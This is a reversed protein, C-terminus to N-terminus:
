HLHREGRGKLDSSISNLEDSWKSSWERTERAMPETLQTVQQTADGIPSKRLAKESPGKASKKLM